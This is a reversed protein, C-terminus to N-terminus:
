KYDTTKLIYSIITRSYRSYRFCGTLLIIILIIHKSKKDSISLLENSSTEIIIIPSITNISPIFIPLCLDQQSELTINHNHIMYITQMPKIDDGCILIIKISLRTINILNRNINIYQNQIHLEFFLARYAQYNLQFIHEIYELNIEEITNEKIIIHLTNQDTGNDKNFLDYIFQQHYQFFDEFIEKNHFILQICQLEITLCQNNEEFKINEYEILTQITCQLCESYYHLIDLDYNTVEQIFCENISQNNIFELCDCHIYSFCLLFLFFKM